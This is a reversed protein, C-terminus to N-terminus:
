SVFDENSITNELFKQIKIPKYHQKEILLFKKLEYQVKNDVPNITEQAKKLILVLLEPKVTRAVINLYDSIVKDKTCIIQNLFKVEESIGKCKKKLRSHHAHIRNRWLRQTKKLIGDRDATLLKKELFAIKEHTNKM